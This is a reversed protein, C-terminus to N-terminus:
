GNWLIRGEQRQQPEARGGICTALAWAGGGFGSWLGTARGAELTCSVPVFGERSTCAVGRCYASPRYNELTMTHLPLLADHM